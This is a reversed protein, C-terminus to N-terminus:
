GQTDNNKLGYGESLAGPEDPSKKPAYDKPQETPAPRENRRKPLLENAPTANSLMANSSLLSDSLRNKIQEDQCLTEASTALHEHVDKYSETLRNILNASVDFHENVKAQYAQFEQQVEVLKQELYNDRLRGGIVVHYLVMGAIIGIFFMLIGILWLENTTDM